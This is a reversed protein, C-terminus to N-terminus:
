CFMNLTKKENNIIKNSFFFMNSSGHLPLKKINRLICFMQFALFISKTCHCPNAKNESVNNKHQSNRVSLTLSLKLCKLKLIHLTTCCIIVATTLNLNSWLFKSICANRCQFCNYAPKIHSEIWIFVTELM